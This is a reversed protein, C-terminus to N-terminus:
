SYVQALTLLLGYAVGALSSCVLLANVNRLSNGNSLSAARIHCYAAAIGLGQRFVINFFVGKETLGIFTPSELFAATWPLMWYANDIAAGIFGLAVGVIFWHEGTKNKYTFFKRASPAWVYVVSIALVITPITLILSLLEATQQAGLAAFITDIM